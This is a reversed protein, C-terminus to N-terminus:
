TKHNCWTEPGERQSRGQLDGTCFFGSNHTYFCFFNEAASFNMFLIRFVQILLFLLNLHCSTSKKM